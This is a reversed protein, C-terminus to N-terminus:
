VKGWAAIAHTMQSGEYLVDDGFVVRYEILNSVWLKLSKGNISQSAYLSWSDRMWDQLDKANIQIKKM